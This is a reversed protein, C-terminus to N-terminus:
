TAPPTGIEFSVMRCGDRGPRFGHDTGPMVVCDGARVPHAGDALLFEGSGELLIVLDIADRHHLKTGLSDEDPSGSPDYDVVHWDVLGPARGAVLTGLGPPCPPPPSQDTSFLSAMAVGPVAPIRDGVVETEEVLCSRGDRDVGFVL